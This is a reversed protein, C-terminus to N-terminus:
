TGPRSEPSMREAWWDLVLVVVFGAVALGIAFMVDGTLADPMVNEQV